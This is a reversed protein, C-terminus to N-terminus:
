CTGLVASKKKKLMTSHKKEVNIRFTFMTNLINCFLAGRHYLCTGLVAGQRPQEQLPPNGSFFLSSFFRFFFYFNALFIVETINAPAWCLVRVHSSRGHRTAVMAAQPNTVLLVPWSGHPHDTFSLRGHDLALVRFRPPIFFVRLHFFFRVFAHGLALVRFRIPISCFVCLFNFLFTLLWNRKWFM